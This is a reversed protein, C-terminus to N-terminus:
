EQLRRFPTMASGDTDRAALDLPSQLGDDYEITHLTGDYSTIKGPYWAHDGGWFVEIRKGVLESAVVRLGFGFNTASPSVSASPAAAAVASSESAASAGTTATKGKGTQNIVCYVEIDFVSRINDHRVTM